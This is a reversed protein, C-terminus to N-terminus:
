EWDDKDDEDDSSEEEPLNFKGLTDILSGLSFIPTTTTITKDKKEVVQEDEVKVANSSSAQNKEKRELYQQIAEDQSLNKGYQGSLIRSHRKNLEEKKEDELKLRKFETERSEEQREFEQRELTEVNNASASKINYDQEAKLLDKELQEKKLQATRKTIYRTIAKNNIISEQDTIEQKLRDVENKANTAELQAKQLNESPSFEMPTYELHKKSVVAKDKGVVEKVLQKKGLEFELKEHEEQEKVEQELEKYAKKSKKFDKKFNELFLYGLKQKEALKDEYQAEDRLLKEKQKALEKKLERLRLSPVFRKEMKPLPPLLTKGMSTTTISQMPPNYEDISLGLMRLKNGHYQLVLNRFDGLTMNVSFGIRDRNSMFNEYNEYISNPVVKYIAPLLINEIYTRDYDEKTQAVPKPPNYEDISVGLKSLANGHYLLVLNRYDGLTMDLSFGTKNRNSM